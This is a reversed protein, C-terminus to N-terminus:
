ILAQGSYASQSHQSYNWGGGMRIVIMFSGFSPFIKQLPVSLGLGRPMFYSTALYPLM